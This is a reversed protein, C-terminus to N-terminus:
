VIFKVKVGAFEHGVEDLYMIFGNSMYKGIHAFIGTMPALFGIRLEEAVIGSPTGLFGGLMLMTVILCWCSKPYCKKM